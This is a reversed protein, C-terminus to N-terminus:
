RFGVTGTAGQSLVADSRSSERDDDDGPSGLENVLRNRARNVRSKITGVACGCINAAEEYSCGAAGVLVLAERQDDPLRDLAAQFDKMDMHAHQGAPSKLQATMEGDVDEVEARRKRHETYFANRLITFLWARLNTGEQFSDIAGWARMLTEQVLDDARSANGCLSYAFGRLNPIQAVLDKKVQESAAM